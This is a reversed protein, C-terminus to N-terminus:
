PFLFSGFVSTPKYKRQLWIQFEKNWSRWEGTTTAATNFGNSAHSSQFLWTGENQETLLGGVPILCSSCYSIVEKTMPFFVVVPFIMFWFMFEFWPTIKCVAISCLRECGSTNVNMGIGVHWLVPISAAALSSIMGQFVGAAYKWCFKFWFMTFSPMQNKESSCVMSETNGRIIWWM